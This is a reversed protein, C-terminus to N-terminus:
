CSSEGSIMALSHEDAPLTGGGSRQLSRVLAAYRGITKQRPSCDLPTGNLDRLHVEEPPLSHFSSSKFAVITRCVECQFHPVKARRYALTRRKAGAVLPVRFNSDSAGSDGRGASGVTNPRLGQAPETVPLELTVSIAFFHVQLVRGVQGLANSTEIWAKMAVSSALVAQTNQVLLICTIVVVQWRCMATCPWHAM